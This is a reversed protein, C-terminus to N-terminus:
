RRGRRGPLRESQGSQGVLRLTVTGLLLAYQAGPRVLARAKDLDYDGNADPVLLVIHMATGVSETSCSDVYVDTNEELM